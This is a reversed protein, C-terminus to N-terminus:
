RLYQFIYPLCNMYTMGNQIQPLYLLRLIIWDFATPGPVDYDGNYFLTESYLLTDNIPGMAQLFEEYITTTRSFVGEAYRPDTNRIGCEAHIIKTNPEDYTLIALGLSGQIGRPREWKDYATDDLFSYIMNASAEDDVQRIGPFGPLSNLANCIENIITLDEKSPNGGVYLLIPTEWKSIVPTRAGFESKLTIDRFYRCIQHRNLETTNEILLAEYPYDLPTTEFSLITNLSPNFRVVKGGFWPWFFWGYYSTIVVIILGCVVLLIRDKKSLKKM